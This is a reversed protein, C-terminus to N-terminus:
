GASAIDVDLLRRIETADDNTITSLKVLEDLARKQIGPLRDGGFPHLIGRYLHYEGSGALNGSREAVATYIVQKASTRKAAQIYQAPHLIMSDELQKRLDPFPSLFTNNGILTKEAEDLAAFLTRLDKPMCKPSKSCQFLAYLVAWYVVPIFYDIRQLDGDENTGIVPNWPSLFNFILMLVIPAGFIFFLLVALRIKNIIQRKPGAWVDDDIKNIWHNVVQILRLLYWYHLKHLDM